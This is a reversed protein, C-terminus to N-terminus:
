RTPPAEFHFSFSGSGYGSQNRPGDLFNQKATQLAQMAQLPTIALSYPLPDGNQLGDFRGDSYDASINALLQLAEAASLGNDTAIQTFIAIIAGLRTSAQQPGFRHGQQKTLDDPATAIFDVDEIGFMAAVENHAQTAATDISVSTNSMIRAAAVTTLANMGIFSHQAGNSLVTQLEFSDPITVTDGTAEDEYSGGTAVVLVPGSLTQTLTYAGSSDTTTQEIVRGRQRNSDLGYVTVAASAVAGM